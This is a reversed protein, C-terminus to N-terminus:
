NVTQQNLGGLVLQFLSTARWLLWLRDNGRDYWDDIRDVSIVGVKPNAVPVVSNQPECFQFIHRQWHLLKILLDAAFCWFVCGPESNVTSSSYIRTDLTLCSQKLHHQLLCAWVCEAVISSRTGTVPLSRRLGQWIGLMIDRVKADKQQVRSQEKQEIPTPDLKDPPFAYTADSAKAWLKPNVIMEILQALPISTLPWFIGFTNPQQCEHHEHHEYNILQTKLLSPM